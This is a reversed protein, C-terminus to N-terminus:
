RRICFRQCGRGLGDWVLTDCAVIRHPDDRAAIVARRLEEVSALLDPGHSEALVTGLLDGLLRVDTRLASPIDARASARDALPMRMIRM